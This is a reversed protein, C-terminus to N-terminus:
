VTNPCGTPANQECPIRVPAQSEARTEGEAVDPCLEFGSREKESDPKRRIARM